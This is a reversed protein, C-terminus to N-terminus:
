VILNKPNYNKIKLSASGRTFTGIKFNEVLEGNMGTTFAYDTEIRIYVSNEDWM